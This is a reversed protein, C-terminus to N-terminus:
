KQAYIELYVEKRIPLAALYIPLLALSHFFNKSPFKSKMFELRCAFNRLKKIKFGNLTLANKLSFKNFGIVHYPSEFPKIKSSTKEGRLLYFFKKVDNLLSDENPVGIYVLGGSKLIRKIESLYEGPNTVHELVSDMYIIDFFDNPYKVDMLTGLSFEIGAKKAENIRNDTIDVGYAKWGREEAEILCYGEGCGVDLFNDIRGSFYFNLKDFRNKRDKQRNKYYWTSMLAFYNEDYLFRWDNEDFDILPKVYYLQCSVCQVVHFEKNTLKSAKAGINALGINKYKKSNCIPCM